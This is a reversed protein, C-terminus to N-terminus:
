AWAPPLRDLAEGQGLVPGDLHAALWSNVAELRCRKVPLSACGIHCSLWPSQPRTTSRGFRRDADRSWQQVMLRFWKSRSRFNYQEAAAGQEGGDHWVGHLKLVGPHHEELQWDIYLQAYSVWHLCQSGHDLISNWWRMMRLQMSSGFLRQFRVGVETVLGGDSFWKTSEIAQRTVHAEPLTETPNREHWRRNVQVIHDRVSEALFEAQSTQLAVQQWIDWFWGPRDTNTSKAVADVKANGLALWRDIQTETDDLAVHATVKAVVVECRPHKAYEELIATWLDSHNSNPSLRASGSTLRRFRKVVAACDSWMRCSRGQSKAFCLGAYVAALEARYATQILGPLHSSAVVQFSPQDSGVEFRSGVCVAWAALRFDPSSGWFCSGDTFLDLEDTVSLSVPIFAFDMQLGLLARVWVTWIQPKLTWGRDVVCSPLEEVVQLVEAPVQSILDQVFPCLWYKHHLNDDEGCEPCSCCGTDSWHYAHRNTFTTGNLVARLAGQDALPYKKVGARTAEIHVFDFAGFDLRSLIAQAVIKQWAWSMRLQVELLNGFALNFSGFADSVVAQSEVKWGLWHLRHCLVESVTAQAATVGASGVLDLTLLQVSDSGLARFDLVTRWIAYLQPDMAFGDLTMQVMPNAGPKAFRLARMYCTRLGGFHKLGLQIASISHLARPWAATKVARQKQALTGRAMGLKSWFDELQAIRSLVTQNRLQKSFVMHAGLDKVDSVVKFGGNRLAARTPGSTGWAFTKRRDLTLDWDKTFAVARELAEVACSPNRLLLEWNDVYSIPVCLDNGAVMWLHFVQNLLMMGLCSLACGEPFGCSSPVPASYSGRVVFRRELQGLAGAWGTLTNTHIGLLRAVAFTPYRPITNFAKTLDLIIGAVPVGTIHAWEVEDLIYRWVHAAQCGIRSGYMHPHLIPDLHRIWHRAHASGWVRYLLGLITVPRYDNVGGPSSCKALSRVAGILLQQPWSGDQEVRDFMSKISLLHPVGLSLLDLRTVGDVGCSTAKRKSRCLAAITELDWSLPAAQIPSLVRQAFSVISDWQSDPIQDHKCWRSSWQEIFARFIDPLGGVGQSQVLVHGPEIGDVSSLWLKDETIMITDLPRGLHMIPQDPFWATESELEVAVDEHDIGSVTAQQAQFLTEIPVPPDRKVAAYVQRVDNGRRLKTHYARHRNLHKEVNRTCLDVFDFIASATEFDPPDNPLSSMLTGGVARESWWDAFTPRFGPAERVARWLSVRHERHTVGPNDVKALRVYSQLRRVQRFMHTHQWSSGYYSPQSDGKRGSVVPPASAVIRVPETRQGRGLCSADLPRGQKLACAQASSEADKWLRGYQVTPDCPRAFDVFTGEHRSELRNWPIAFPIPWPTRLMERNGGKFHAVVPSHDPWMDHHVSCSVFISQLEPSLFLFDRQTKLKCTPKPPVGTQEFHLQQAEIFGLSRLMDAAELSDVDHNWDGCIYRPGHSQSVRSIAATLLANTTAKAQPHTPGTPTGYITVGSVWLGHLFTTSCVLRSSAALAPSWGTPLSRTPWQSIVM